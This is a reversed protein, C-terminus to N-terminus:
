SPRQGLRLYRSLSNCLWLRTVTSCDTLYSQHGRISQCLKQHYVYIQPLRMQLPNQTIQLANHAWLIPAFELRSLEKWLRPVPLQRGKPSHLLVSSTQYRSLSIYRCSKPWIDRVKVQSKNCRRVCISNMKQANIQTRYGLNWPRKWAEGLRTVLLFERCRM